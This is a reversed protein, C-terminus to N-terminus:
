PRRDSRGDRVGPAPTSVMADGDLCLTTEDCVVTSETPQLWRRGAFGGTTNTTLTNTTNDGDVDDTLTANDEEDPILTDDLHTEINLDTANSYPTDDSDMTDNFHVDGTEDNETVNVTSNDDGVDDGADPPMGDADNVPVATVVVEVDADFAAMDCLVRRTLPDEGM